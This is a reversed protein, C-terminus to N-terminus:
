AASRLHLSTSSSAALPARRGLKAFRLTGMSSLRNHPLHMHMHMLRALPIGDQGALPGVNECSTRQHSICLSCLNKKVARHLPLDSKSQALQWCARHYSIDDPSRIANLSPTTHGHSKDCKADRSELVPICTPEKRAGEGM